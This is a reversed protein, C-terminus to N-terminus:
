SKGALKQFQALWDQYYCKDNLVKATQERIISEVGKENEVWNEITQCMTYQSNLKQQYEKFAYPDLRLDFDPNQASSEQSDTHDRLQKAQSSCYQILEQRAKWQAVIKTAFYTECSKPHIENLHQRISDDTAIRSLRLFARIRSSSQCSELSFLQKPTTESKQM